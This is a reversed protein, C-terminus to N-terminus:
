ARSFSCTCRGCSSETDVCVHVCMWGRTYRYMHMGVIVIPAFLAFKYKSFLKGLVGVRM